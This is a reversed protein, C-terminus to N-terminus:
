TPDCSISITIQSACPTILNTTERACVFCLDRETCMDCIAWCSNFKKVHSGEMIRFRISKLIKVRLVQVEQSILKFTQVTSIYESSDVTRIVHTWVLTCYSIETSYSPHVLIYGDLVIAWLFARWSCLYCLDSPTLELIVNVEQIIWANFASWSSCIICYITRTNFPLQSKFTSSSM